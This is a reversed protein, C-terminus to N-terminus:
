RSLKIEDAVIMTQLLSIGENVCFNLYLTLPMLEVLAKKKGVIADLVADNSVSKKVCYRLWNMGYSHRMFHDMSLQSILM